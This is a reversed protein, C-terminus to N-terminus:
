LPENQFTRREVLGEGGARRMNAPKKSHSLRINQQPVQTGLGSFSPPPPPQIYVRIRAKGNNEAGLTLFIKPGWIAGEFRPVGSGGGWSHTPGSLHFGTKPQVWSSAKAIWSAAM